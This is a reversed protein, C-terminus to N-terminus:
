NTRALVRTDNKLAGPSTSVFTTHSLVIQDISFGDECTQVRITQPGACAFYILVGCAVVLLRRFLRNRVDPGPSPAARLRAPAATCGPSLSRM